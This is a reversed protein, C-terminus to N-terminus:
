KMEREVKCSAKTQMSKGKCETDYERCSNYFLLLFGCSTNRYPVKEDRQKFRQNADLPMKNPARACASPLLSSNNEGCLSQRVCM